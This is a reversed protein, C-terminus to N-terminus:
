EDRRLMIECADAGISSTPFDWWVVYAKKGEEFADYIEKFTHFELTNGIVSDAEMVEVYYADEKDTMIKERRVFSVDAIKLTADSIRKNAESSTLTMYGERRSGSIKEIVENEIYRRRKRMKTVVSIIVIAVVVVMLVTYSFYAAPSAEVFVLSFVMIVTLFGTIFIGIAIDANNDYNVNAIAPSDGSEALTKEDVVRELLKNIIYDREEDTPERFDFDM